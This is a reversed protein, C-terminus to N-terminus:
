IKCTEFNIMVKYVRLLEYLPASDIVIERYNAALSKRLVAADEPNCQM